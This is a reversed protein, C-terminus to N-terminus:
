RATGWGSALSVVRLPRFPDDTESGLQAGRSSLIVADLLPPPTRVSSALLFSNSSNSSMIPTPSPTPRPRFAIADVVGVDADADADGAVGVVMGVERKADDKGGFVLVVVVAVGVVVVVVV